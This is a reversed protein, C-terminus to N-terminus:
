EGNLYQEATLALSIAPWNNENTDDLQLVEGSLARLAQRLYRIEAELVQERHASATTPEM